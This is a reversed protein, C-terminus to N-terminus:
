FEQNNEEKIKKKKKAIEMSLSHHMIAVNTIKGCMNTYEQRSVTFLKYILPDWLKNPKAQGWLSHGQIM